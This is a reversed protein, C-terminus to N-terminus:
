GQGSFYRRLVRLNCSWPYKGGSAKWEQYCQLLWGEMSDSRAFVKGASSREIIQRLEPDDPGNVLALIPRGAALYDYLKATLVGYYDDASWNLLLLLQANEQLKQASAPAIRDGSNLQIGTPFDATWTEWVRRDKGRYILEIERPDVQKRQVLDVLARRLPDISQLKAYLSGTYVLTFRETRPATVAPPLRDLRSRHVTATPYLERLHRVQGESVGWVEDATRLVRRAWRKQLAPWWVDRRVPDAHLDRFDAIWHLHPYKRKLERAVLHDSWPRFSSLITTVGETDILKCAQTLASRRYPLGGDDTLYLFPFAQRFPVLAALLGSPPTAIAPGSQRLSSRLDRLPIPYTIVGPVEAGAYSERDGRIAFVRTFRELGWEALQRLRRAAAAPRPHAHQTLLLLSGAGDSTGSLESM